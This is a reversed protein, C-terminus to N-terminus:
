PTQRGDVMRTTWLAAAGFALGGALLPATLSVTEALAGGVVGGLALGTLALVRAGAYVRGRLDRPVLRQRLSTAAISYVTAHLIYFALLVGALYANTTFALGVLTVSGLGMSAAMTARYGIRRRVGAAIGTGALGGLASFALLFGYGSPTLQLRDLAFLVLISFPVM